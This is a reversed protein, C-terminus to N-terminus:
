MKLITQKPISIIREMEAAARIYNSLLGVDSMMEPGSFCVLFEPISSQKAKRQHTNNRYNNIGWSYSSLYFFYINM